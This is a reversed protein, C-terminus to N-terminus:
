SVLAQRKSMEIRDNPPTEAKRKGLVGNETTSSKIQANKSKPSKPSGKLPSKPSGKTQTSRKVHQQNKLADAHCTAHYFIGEVKVANRYLWEEDTDNWFSEFKEKCIPCPKDVKEPDSPAIVTSESSVEDKKNTQSSGTPNKQNKMNKVSNTNDFDFFAPSQTNKTDAERSHIWDEEGVFWCRSQTKKAREKMRRNQRFHWDLHSDMKAKGGEDRAYRFGCQKCQLPFADYLISIAGERKRQIENSTFQIKPLDNVHLIKIPTGNLQPPTPTFGGILGFEMLNKVLLNPDTLLNNHSSTNNNGLPVVPNQLALQQRQLILQRCEQLLRQQDSPPVFVQSQQQLLQPVPTKSSYQQTNYYGQRNHTDSYTTIGNSYRSNDVWQNTTNQQVPPIQNMQNIQGIAGSLFNPNIHIHSRGGDISGRSQYRMQQKMLAREIQGTVEASYVPAGNPGIIWTALVRELKQKTPQDVVNYIEMFTHCLNRAFLQIYTGGVNKSISDLLYLVPLKQTPSVTRIQDEIAQVIARAANINEQALITLNNIIPKSNFTLEQLSARYDQRVNELDMDTSAM